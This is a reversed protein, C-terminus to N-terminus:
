IDHKKFYVAKDSIPTKWDVYHINLLKESENPISLEVGRFKIKRLPFFISYDAGNPYRFPKIAGGYLKNKYSWTSWCDFLIKKNPSLIKIQSLNKKKMWMQKSSLIKYFERIKEIATNNDCDGM